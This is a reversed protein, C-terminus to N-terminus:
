LQICIKKLMQLYKVSCRVTPCFLSTRSNHTSSSPIVNARCMRNPVYIKVNEQWNTQLKNNPVSM